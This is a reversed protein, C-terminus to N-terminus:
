PANIKPNPPRGEREGAGGEEKTERGETGRKVERLESTSARQAHSAMSTSISQSSAM